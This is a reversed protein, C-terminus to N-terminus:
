KGVPLSYQRGAIIRRGIAENQASSWLESGTTIKNLRHHNVTDLSTDKLSQYNESPCLLSFLPLSHMATRNRALDSCASCEARGGLRNM